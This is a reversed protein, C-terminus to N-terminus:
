YGEEVMMQQDIEFLLALLGVDVLQVEYSLQLHGLGLQEVSELRQMLLGGNNIGVLRYENGFQDPVFAPDINLM